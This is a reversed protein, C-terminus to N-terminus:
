DPLFRIGIELTNEGFEKPIPPLPEAKKIARMAMQDYFANNSKKEYWMKKIKGDREITIVVITELDTMEKFLNEPITWTEKIKAWILSYYENLKSEWESPSKLSSTLPPNTSAVIPREDVKEHRAVRKRIEDIAAKKRIEEIAEQLHKLSVKEKEPKKIKEIIDDRKRKEIPKSREEKVVPLPITKQIEPEQVSIPMLTVTYAQPRAKVITPWPNLSPLLVLAIHLVLSVGGMRLLGGRDPQRLSSM